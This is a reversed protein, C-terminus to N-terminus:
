ESPKLVELEGSDLATLVMPILVDEDEVPSAALEVGIRRGVANNHLDMRTAPDNSPLVEHADALLRALAEGRDFAMLANWYAHRFADSEDDSGNHGFRAVTEAEAIRRDTAFARAAWPHARVFAKEGEKLDRWEPFRTLFGDIPDYVPVVAAEEGGDNSGDGSGSTGINCLKQSPVTAGNPCYCSGSVRIGCAPLYTGPNFDAACSQLIAAQNGCGGGGEDFCREYALCANYCSAPVVDCAPLQAVSTQGVGAVFILAM